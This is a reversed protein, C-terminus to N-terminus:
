LRPLLGAPADDTRVFDVPPNDTVAHLWKFDFICEEGEVRSGVILAQYLHRMGDYIDVRGRLLDGADADLAMGDAWFRRIRMIDDGDHVCLRNGRSISARRADQLGKIVADPLFDNM